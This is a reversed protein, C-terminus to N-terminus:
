PALHKRVQLGLDELQRGACTKICRIASPAKQSLHEAVPDSLDCRTKICRIASPAKQGFADWGDCRRDCGTKICRIASPAKQSPPMAGM